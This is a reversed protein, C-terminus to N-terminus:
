SRKLNKKRAATYRENTCSLADRVPPLEEREVHARYVAIGAVTIRYNLEAVGDCDITEEEVLRRALLGLHADGSSSGIRIGNLARTVTGSVATYGARVGLAARTLVPWDCRHVEAASPLLAALVRAQPTRLPEARATGAPRFPDRVASVPVPIRRYQSPQAAIGENYHL